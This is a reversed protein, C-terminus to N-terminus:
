APSQQMKLLNLPGTEKAHPQWFEKAPLPTKGLAAAAASQVLRVPDSDSGSCKHIGWPEPTDPADRHVAPQLMGYSANSSHILFPVM